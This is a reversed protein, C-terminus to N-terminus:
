TRMSHATSSSCTLRSAIESARLLSTTTTRSVQKCTLGRRVRVQVRTLCKSCRSSAKPWVAKILVMKSSLSCSFDTALPVSKVALTPSGACPGPKSKMPRTCWIKLRWMRNRGVSALPSTGEVEHRHRGVAALSCQSLTLRTMTSVLGLDRRKLNRRRRIIVLLISDAAKEKLRPM